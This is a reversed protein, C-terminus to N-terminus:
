QTLGEPLGHDLGDDGGDGRNKMYEKYVVLAESVKARLAEDNEVRSFTLM